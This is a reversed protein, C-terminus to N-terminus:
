AGRRDYSGFGDRQAGRELRDREREELGIVRAKIERVDGRLGNEGDPGIVHAKLERLGEEIRLLRSGLQTDISTKQRDRTRGRFADYIGKGTLVALIAGNSLYQALTPDIM